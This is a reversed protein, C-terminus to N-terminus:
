LVMAHATWEKATNWIYSKLCDGILDTHLRHLL